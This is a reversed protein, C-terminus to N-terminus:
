KLIEELYINKELNSEKGEIKGKNMENTEHAQETKEKNNMKNVLSEVGKYTVGAKILCLALYGTQIAYRGLVKLDEKSKLNYYPFSKEKRTKWDRIGLSILGVGPLIRPIYRVYSIIKKLGM